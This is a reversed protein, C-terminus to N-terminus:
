HAFNVYKTCQYEALGEAGGERGIGSEKVGGFPAAPNSVLGTNIGVMGAHVSRSYEHARRTSETFVYAALGHRSDNALTIAEADSSFTTCAVVPGFIEEHWIRATQPVDTLITPALYSPGLDSTLEGSHLVAGQALADNVLERVRDAQSGTIMPGLTTDHALGPGLHIEAFRQALRALFETAIEEHVIFRNAATCAQGGNRLKAVLAGVVAADLDADACVVFPANGGLELSTRLLNEAAQQQLQKGVATSGTFSLKAVRPDSILAAGLERDGTTPLTSVVGAPVATEAVIKQLLLATLPTQSAPKILMACGAALAPALKRAIMALPFNWPTIALCVGVPEATVAVQAGGGPALHYHGSPTTAQNAFWEFYQAGYRVEGRSEALPKGMELSILAAFHEEAALIHTYIDRLCEARINPATAAWTTQAQDAAALAALADTVSFDSVAAIQQGNAPNLVPFQAANRAPRWAGAYYGQTPVDTLIAVTREQDAKGVLLNPRVQSSNM